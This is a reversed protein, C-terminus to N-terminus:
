MQRFLHVFSRSVPLCEGRGKIQVEGGDHPGHNFQQVQMLNVIAARHIQAFRAPDLADALQGRLHEALTDLAATSLASPAPVAPALLRERLRRVTEALRAEDFPKVIYDIAEQRFAEVAYQEHATVFVLEAREGICRAAEIGNMGPMHVDLFAIRPELEDFLEVAERGNRATAVIQLEPWLRHLIAVLRERLLPEDDAVLATCTHM